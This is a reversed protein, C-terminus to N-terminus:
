ENTERTWNQQLKYEIMLRIDGGRMYFVQPCQLWIAKLAGDVTDEDDVLRWDIEDESEDDDSEYSSESESEDNIFDSDTRDSRASASGSTKKLYNLRDTKKRPRASHCRRASPPRHRNRDTTSKPRTCTGESESIKLLPLNLSEM